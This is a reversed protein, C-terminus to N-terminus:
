RGEDRLEVLLAEICLTPNVNREIASLAADVKLFRRAIQEQRATTTEPKRVLAALHSAYAQLLAGVEHRAKPLERALELGLGLNSASCARDMANVWQTNREALESDAWQLAREMSGEAHAALRGDLGRAALLGEIVEQPLPGFRVALTRSRLTDLLRHPRSTHLVFHVKPGPEELTKLLANAASITLEEADEIFVVLARGEHPGFGTRGLVVKRVQEVSIGTAEKSSLFPPGYLGRRVWIFDPHIPVEPAETSLTGARQCATCEGCGVTASGTCLLSQALAVATKKKGVGSPGEFRYAHHVRDNALARELTQVAAPQGLISEFVGSM